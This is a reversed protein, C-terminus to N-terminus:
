TTSNFNPYPTFCRALLQYYRLLWFQLGTTMQAVTQWVSSRQFILLICFGVEGNETKFILKICIRILKGQLGQFLALRILIPAYAAFKIDSFLFKPLSRFLTGVTPLLICFFRAVGDDNSCSNEM